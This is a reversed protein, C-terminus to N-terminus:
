PYPHPHEHEVGGYAVFRRHAKPPFSPYCLTLLEPSFMRYVCFGLDSIDRTTLDTFYLPMAANRFADLVSKIGGTLSKPFRPLENARISTERSFRKELIARNEPRAYYVVNTDLDAIKSSDIKEVQPSRMIGILALHPIASAELFAKYCAMELSFDCAIGVACAPVEVRRNLLVCAVVHVPFNPSSLYHFRVEYANQTATETL